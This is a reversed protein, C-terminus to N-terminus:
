CKSKTEKTSITKKIFKQLNALKKRNLSYYIWKGDKNIKVLDKERLIGLHHSVISQKLKLREFIDCVCKPGTSLLIVIDFRVSDGLTKLIQFYIDKTNDKM